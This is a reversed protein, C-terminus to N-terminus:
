SSRPDSPEGFVLVEINNEAKIGSLQQLLRKEVKKLENIHNRMEELQKFQENQGVTKQLKKIEIKLTLNQNILDKEEKM